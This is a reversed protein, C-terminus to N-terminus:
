KRQLPARPKVTKPHLGAQAALLIAEDPSTASKALDLRVGTKQQIVNCICHYFGNEVYIVDGINKTNESHFYKPNSDDIDALFKLRYTISAKAVTTGHTSNKM